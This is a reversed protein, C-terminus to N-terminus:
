KSSPRGRRKRIVDKIAALAEDAPEESQRTEAMVAELLILYNIADGIKEDVMEESAEWPKNVLDLISVMHKAFMGILAKEPTTDLMAAARKFNHLRDEESAYEKAKGSLINVCKAIRRNLIKVFDEHKM